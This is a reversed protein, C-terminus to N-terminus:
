KIKIKYKLYNNCLNLQNNLIEFIKDNDNEKEIIETIHENFKHPDRFYKEQLIFDQIYFDIEKIKNELIFNEITYNKEIIFIENELDNKSISYISINESDNNEILRKQSEYENELKKNIKLLENKLWILYKKKNLKCGIYTATILKKMQKLIM